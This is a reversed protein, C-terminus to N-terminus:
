RQRYGLQPTKTQSARKRQAYTRGKLKKMMTRADAEKQALVMRESIRQFYEDLSSTSPTDNPAKEKCLKREEIQPMRRINADQLIYERVSPEVNLHIHKPNHSYLLTTLHDPRANQNNQVEMDQGEEYQKRLKIISSTAPLLRRNRHPTFFRLYSRLKQAFVLSKQSKTEHGQEETRHAPPKEKTCCEFCSGVDLRKFAKEDKMSQKSTTTIDHKLAKDPNEGKGLKKRTARQQHPRMRQTKVTEKGDQQPPKQMDQKSENKALVSIENAAETAPEDDAGVKEQVALKCDQVYKCKECQTTTKPKMCKMFRRFSRASKAQAAEDCNETCTCKTHGQEPLHQQQKSEEQQEQTSTVAKTTTQEALDKHEAHADATGSKITDAKANSKMGKAKRADRRKRTLQCCKHKCLTADYHCKPTILVKLDRNVQQLRKLIAKETRIYSQVRKVEGRNKQANIYKPPSKDQNPKNVARKGITKFAPAYQWICTDKNCKQKQAENKLIHKVEPM